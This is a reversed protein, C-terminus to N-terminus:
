RPTQRVTGHTGDPLKFEMIPKNSYFFHQDEQDNEDLIQKDAEEEVEELIEAAANVQDLPLRRDRRSM